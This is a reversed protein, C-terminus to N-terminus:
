HAPYRSHRHSHISQLQYANHTRAIVLLAIDLLQIQARPLSQSLKGLIAVLMDKDIVRGRVPCDLYQPSQRCRVAGDLYDYIRPIYAMNARRVM